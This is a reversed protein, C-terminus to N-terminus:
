RAIIRESAFLRRTLTLSVWAAVLSGVLALVFGAPPVVEGRIVGMLLAEQGLLPIPYMYSQAEISGIGFVIAPLTPILMLLSLYTQAEKFSKAFSAILLQLAAVFLSLPLVAVLVAAIEGAGLSLSIGLEDLPVRSLAVLTLGLTLLVTAASFSVTALWKGLIIARRSAPTLLLPELSGREREGATVDTAVYMGGVFVAILVFMPVLHLFMAARREPTSADVAHVQIPAAVSPSVGRALLRLTGLRKAYGGILREVRMATARAGTRSNDSVLDVVIPRSERFRTAYDRPIVLVADAEGSTVAAAIDLPPPEISVEHERLFAILGPAHEAGVVPLKAGVPRTIESTTLWLAVAVLVPGVLPFLLLSLMARRDRLADVLEKMFVVAVPSM